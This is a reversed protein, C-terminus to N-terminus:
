SEQYDYWGSGTKRGFRGEDYLNKIAPDPLSSRDGTQEYEAMRILYVVDVGVLDMLEFPGMPHRLAGRAAKDIDDVSAVGNNLLNLAENRIANLLRNAVFGPIEENLKVVSKGFAEALNRTRSITKSSTEPNPVVEVCEMVLAPNFFHMNCVRDDRNTADAIKSSVINSSNTALVAHEPAIRDLSKFLERKIALDEVAAEIVFDTTSVISDRDTSFKLRDRSQDIDNQTRRGKSVDRDLRSWLEARAQELPADGIDVLTTNFGSLASVMAIQSGMTGAGLVTVHQITGPREDTLKTKREVGTENPQVFEVTM